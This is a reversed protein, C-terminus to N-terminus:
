IINFVTKIKQIDSLDGIMREEPLPFKKILLPIAFINENTACEPHENIDIIELSYRGKLYKECLTNINKIAHSSDATNSIVFLKLIFEQNGSNEIILRSKEPPQNSM